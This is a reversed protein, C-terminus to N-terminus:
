GEHRIMQVFGVMEKMKMQFPIIVIRPLSSIDMIRDVVVGRILGRSYAELKWVM